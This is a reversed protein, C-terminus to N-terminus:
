RRRRRRFGCEGLHGASSLLAAPDAADVIEDEVSVSFGRNNFYTAFEPDSRDTLDFAAIGGVREFGVFAYTTGDVEGITLAEPEPGKDDGRGELSSQSHNSYFFGPIPSSSDM